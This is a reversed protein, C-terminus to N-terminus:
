QGGLVENRVENLHGYYLCNRDCHGNHLGECPQMKNLSEEENDYRSIIKRIYGIYEFNMEKGPRMAACSNIWVVNCYDHACLDFSTKFNYAGTSFSPVIIMTLMYGRMIREMYRTTLFDKCILVAFRGIGEYHFINLINKGRIYEMHDGTSTNMIFPNRKYQKALEHGNRDLISCTNQGEHSVSPLITMAPLKKRELPSLAQMKEQIYSDVTLNGLMEPFVVMEAGNEGAEVIKKWILENHQEDLEEKYDIAFYRFKESEFHKVKFNPTACIPTAAVCLDKQKDFEEFFYNPLFIHNARIDMLIHSDIVMFHKLYNAIRRYSYSMRSKRAWVCDCRPLLGIGTEERNTNLLTAQDEHKFAEIETKLINALSGDMAQLLGMISNYDNEVMISNAFKRIKRVLNTDITEETLRVFRGNEGRKLPTAAEIADKIRSKEHPTICGYRVMYNDVNSDLIDACLEAFINYLEKILESTQSM